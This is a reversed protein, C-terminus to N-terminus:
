EIKKEDEQKAVNSAGKIFSRYQRYLTSSNFFKIAEVIWELRLYKGLIIEDKRKEIRNAKFKRVKTPNTV